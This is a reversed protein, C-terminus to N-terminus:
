NGALHLKLSALDGTDIRGNEDMDAGEFVEGSVGALHLKLAALDSTDVKGNGDVDGLIVENTSKVFIKLVPYGETAVYKDGLPMNDCVNIGKMQADSLQTWTTM